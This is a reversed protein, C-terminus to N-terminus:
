AHRASQIEPPAGHSLRQEAHLAQALMIAPKRHRIIDAQFYQRTFDVRQDAGIASAFGRQDMLDGAGDHRISPANDESPSIYRAKGQRATHM